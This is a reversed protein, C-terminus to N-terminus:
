SAPFGQDCGVALLSPPPPDVVKVEALAPPGFTIGCAGWMASAREIEARGRAVAGADDGGHQPPGHPVLRLLFMRITARFRDIRGLASRRPGAVRIM